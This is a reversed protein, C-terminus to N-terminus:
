TPSKWSLAAILLPFILYSFNIWNLNHGEPISAAPEELINTGPAAWGWPGSPGLEVSSYCRFTYFTTQHIELKQM